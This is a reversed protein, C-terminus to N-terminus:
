VETELVPNRESCLSLQVRDRTNTRDVDIKGSCLPSFFVRLSGNWQWAVGGFEVGDRRIKARDLGLQIGRREPRGDSIHCVLLATEEERAEGVTRM